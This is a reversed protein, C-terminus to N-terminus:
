FQRNLVNYDFTFEVDVNEPSGSPLKRFPAANEIAKLAAQDALAMGSSQSIKLNSLEGNTHIKFVVKVKKSEGDKPPFWARKIRRQLDAMYEDFRPFARCNDRTPTGTIGQMNPNLEGSGTVPAGSAIRTSPSIFIPGQGNAGRSGKARIPAPALDGSGYNIGAGTGPMAVPTIATRGQGPDFNTLPAPATAAGTSSNSTAARPSFPAPNVDRGANSGGPSLQQTGPLNLNNSSSGRSSPGAPMIASASAKHLSSSSALQNPNPAGFLTSAAAPNAAIPSPRLDSLPNSNLPSPMPTPLVAQRSVSSSQLASPSPSPMPISQSSSVKPTPSPAIMKSLDGQRINPLPPAPPKIAQALLNSLSPQQPTDLKMERKQAAPSSASSFSPSTHANSANSKSGATQKALDSMKATKNEPRNVDKQGHAVSAINARLTANRPEEEKMLTQMFEIVIVQKPSGPDAVFFLAMVGLALVISAHFIYSGSAAEPLEIISDKYIAKRKRYNAQDYADRVAYAVFSIVLASVVFSAPSGLKLSNLASVLGDNIEMRHGLGLLKLGQALQPGTLILALLFYNVVAVDLFLMGKRSQGNYYQGLGPILSLIAATQPSRHSSFEASFDSRPTQRM